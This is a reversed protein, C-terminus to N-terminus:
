NSSEARLEQRLAAPSLFRPAFHVKGKFYTGGKDEFLVFHNREELRVKELLEKSPIEVPGLDEPPHIWKKLLLSCGQMSSVAVLLTMALILLPLRRAM